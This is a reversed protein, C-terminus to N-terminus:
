SVATDKIYIKLSQLDLFSFFFFHSLDNLSVFIRIMKCIGFRNFIITDTNRSQHNPSM